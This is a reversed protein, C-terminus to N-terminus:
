ATMWTVIRDVAQVPIQGAGLSVQELWPSPQDIEESSAQAHSWPSEAAGERTTWLILGNDRAPPLDPPGLAELAARLATSITYRDLECRGESPLPQPTFREDLERVWGGVDTIADWLIYRNITGLRPGAHGLLTAGLRLGIAHLADFGTIARLEEAALGIDELWGHVDGDHSQGWSDGTGRYDFRLVHWGRKALRRALFRCSRHSFEYESGWPQCLLIQGVEPAEPTHHVGFLRQAGSGFYFASM